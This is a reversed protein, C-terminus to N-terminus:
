PPLDIRENLKLIVNLRLPLLLLYELLIRALRPALGIHRGEGVWVHVAPEVQPVRKCHGLGFKSDRVLTYTEKASSGRENQARERESEGPLRERQM